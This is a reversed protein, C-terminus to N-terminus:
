DVLKLFLDELSPEVGKIKMIEYNGLLNLIDKYITREKLYVLNNENKHDCNEIIFDQDRLESILEQKKSDLFIEVIISM